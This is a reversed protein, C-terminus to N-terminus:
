KAKLLTELHFFEHPPIMELIEDDEFGFFTFWNLGVLEPLETSREEGDDTEYYEYARVINGNGRM